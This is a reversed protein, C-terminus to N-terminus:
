AAPRAPARERRGAIWWALATIFGIIAAGSFMAYGLSLKKKPTERYELVWYRDPAPHGQEALSTIAVGPLANATLVGEHHGSALDDAFRILWGDYIKMYARVPQGAVWEPSVIPVYFYTSRGRGETVSVGDDGALRGTVEAWRGAPQEGRELAG